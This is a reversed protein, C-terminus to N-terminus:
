MVEKIEEIQNILDKIYKDNNSKVTNDKFEINVVTDDDLISIKKGIIRGSGISSSSGLPIKSLGLDRLTLLIMGIAVKNENDDELKKLSLNIEIYGKVRKENFKGGTTVGGTFRDVKIRNYLCYKPNEIIADDVMVNGIAYDKKIEPSSGYIKDIIKREKNLTKLIITNYQRLMGKIVSGPIIDQGVSNKMNECDASEIYLNEKIILSDKIEGTFKFSIYINNSYDNLKKYDVKEYKKNNLLYDKLDNKNGLDFRVVEVNNIQFSGFGNMKNAGLRLKKDRIGIILKNILEKEIKRQEKNESFCKINIEFNTNVEIFATEYKGGEISTGYEYDRRIGPRIGIDFKDGYSDSVYIKSDLGDNQESAFVLEVKREEGINSLYSKFAGALSSGPIIPMQNNKDILIDIDDKGNGIKLPTKNQISIKYEDIFRSNKM